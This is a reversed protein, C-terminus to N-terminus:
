PGTPPPPAPPNPVTAPATPTWPSRDEDGPVPTCPVPPAPGGLGSVCCEETYGVTRYLYTVGTTKPTVCDNIWMVTAREVYTCNRAYCTEVIGMAVYPPIGVGSTRVFWGWAGCVRSTAVERAGWFWVRYCANNGWPLDDRCPEDSAALEYAAFAESEQGPNAAEYEVGASIASLEQDRCLNVPDTSKDFPVVASPYGADKLWQLVTDRDEDLPLAALPDDAKLGKVFDVVEATTTAAGTIEVPSKVEWYRDDSDPIGHGAKISKIIAAQDTEEWTKSTWSNSGPVREYLVVALNSGFTTSDDAFAAIAVVRAPSSSSTRVLPKFTWGQGKLTAPSVNVTQALASGLPGLLALLFVAVRTIAGAGFLRSTFPM